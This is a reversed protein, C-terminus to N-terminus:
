RGRLAQPVPCMGSAARRRRKSDYSVVKLEAEATYFYSNRGVRIEDGTSLMSAPLPRRGNLRVSRHNVLLMAGTLGNPDNLPVVVSAATDGGLVEGLPIPAEALLQAPGEACLLLPEDLARAVWGPDAPEYLRM